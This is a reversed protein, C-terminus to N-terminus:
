LGDVRAVLRPTEQRSNVTFLNSKKTCSVRLWASVKIVTMTLRGPFSVTTTRQVHIHGSGNMIKEMNHKQVLQDAMCVLIWFRISQIRDRAPVVHMTCLTGRMTNSVRILTSRQGYVYRNPFRLNKGREGANTTRGDGM